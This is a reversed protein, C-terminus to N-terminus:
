HMVGKLAHPRILMQCLEDHRWEHDARLYHARTFPNGYLEWGNVRLTTVAVAFAQMDSECVIAVAQEIPQDIKNSMIM